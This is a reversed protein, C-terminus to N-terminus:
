LLGFSNTSFTHLISPCSSTKGAEPIAATYEVIAAKNFEPVDYDETTKQAVCEKNIL